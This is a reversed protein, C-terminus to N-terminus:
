FLPEDPATTTMIAHYNSKYSHICDTCIVVSTTLEFGVWVLLARYLIIHYLKETVQLLNIFSSLWDHKTPKLKILIWQNQWNLISARRTIFHSVFLVVSVTPILTDWTSIPHSILITMNNNNNYKVISVM